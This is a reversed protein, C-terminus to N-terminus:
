GEKREETQMLKEVLVKFHEGREEYDRFMDFSSCAPSLLIIEGPQSIKWAAQFAEDLDVAREIGAAGALEEEMRGAAQGYLFLRRVHRQIPERLSAFPGGKDKGGALLLIPQAFSELAQIVSDVTTAKSDNYFRVDKREGVYEVRHELGVFTEMAEQIAGGSAGCLRAVALAAMINEINHKGPLQVCATKYNEESDIEGPRYHICDKEFHLEIDPGAAGGFRLIRADLRDMRPGLWWDGAPVIAYDKATQNMFIRAKAEAYAEMNPYRDLHDHSFNTWVAIWPRFSVITELQFSSLEVVVVEPAEEEKEKSSSLLFDILPRGINGGVWHPIGAKELMADILSVTTTKGNTGTIGIIPIDIFRFALEEEGIVEVGAKRAEELPAITLPVGPSVVIFDAGTFDDHNHEGLSLRCGSSSLSTVAGDLKELPRLDTGCVEAKQELLFRAVAVGTRALGVVLAKRGALDM